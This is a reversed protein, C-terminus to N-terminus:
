WLLPVVAANGWLLMGADGCSSRGQGGPSQLAMRCPLTSARASCVRPSPLSVWLVVQLQLQLLMVVIVGKGVQNCRLRGACRLAPEQQAPAAAHRPPQQHRRDSHPGAGDGPATCSTPCPFACLPLALSSSIVQQLQDTHPRTGIAHHRDTHPWDTGSWSRTCTTFPLAPTLSSHAAHRPPQQNGRDSHPGAGDGPAHVPTLLTLLTLLLSCIHAPSIHPSSFLFSSLPSPPLPPFPPFPPFVYSFLPGLPLGYGGRVQSHAGERLWEMRLQECPCSSSHTAFPSTSHLHAALVLASLLAHATASPLLNTHAM